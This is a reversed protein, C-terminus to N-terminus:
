SRKKKECKKEDEETTQLTNMLIVPFLVAAAAASTFACFVARSLHHPKTHRMWEYVYISKKLSDIVLSQRALHPQTRPQVVNYICLVAM